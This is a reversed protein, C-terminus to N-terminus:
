VRLLMHAHATGAVAAAQFDAAADWISVAGHGQRANIFLAGCAAKM